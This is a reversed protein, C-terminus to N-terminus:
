GVFSRVRKLVPFNLLCEGDASRRSLSWCPTHLLFEGGASRRSANWCPAHLLFGWTGFSLVPKLCVFLFVSKMVAYTFLSEGCSM